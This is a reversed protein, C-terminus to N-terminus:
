HNFNLHLKARGDKEGSGVQDALNGIIGSSVSTMVQDLTDTGENEMVANWDITKSEAPKWARGPYDLTLSLRYEDFRATLTSRGKALGSATLAELAEGVTLGARMIVDRRAGWAAGCDELFRSAQEAANPGDLLLEGSRAVGIRFLLTLVVALSVGVILGSGLLPKLGLPLAATMEPVLMVAIGAALSLGVTARRRDNLLRSLILEAGAVILYAATYIMIAGMVASPILIIFMTIQPFLAMLILFLGAAIGVRRAAIGTAHALGLNASSCGIPMTGAFGSLCTCLGISNLLRAILPLDARRWENNNMRDIVVASGMDDLNGILVAFVLPIIAGPVWALAPRHYDGVPLSFFPQGAIAAWESSGFHGVAWATLLGAAAGILLGLCRIRDSAWVSIATVTGLTVVAILVFDFHIMDLNGTDMGMCRRVGGPVLSAGLLLLLVGMVEPPFLVQLRPLFRALLFVAIGAVILGGSAAGIGLTGSVHIYTLMVITGPMLVILHGASFRTTLGNLITGIGLIMVGWAVFNRLAGQSLGIDIGTIVMYIVLMMAVIAHQLGAALLRPVPLPEHAVYLMDRPKVREVDRFPPLLTDLIKKAGANAM